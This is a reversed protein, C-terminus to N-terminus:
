LAMLRRLVDDPTHKDWTPAKKYVRADISGWWNLPLHYTIQQGKKFFIGCIFWGSMTTGDSHVKSKWAMTPYRKMLARFLAMRHDYLEGFYHYGDSIKNTDVNLLKILKNILKEKWTHNRRYMFGIPTVIVRMGFIQVYNLKKPNKVTKQVQKKPEIKNKPKKM